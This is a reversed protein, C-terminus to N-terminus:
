ILYKAFTRSLSRKVSMKQANVFSDIIVQIAKDIHSPRVFESLQMKAFAESLRIASELHRVTIPYSGTALSERRMDSYLRSIKEEDMQQLRPFVKERAFHIYKRLLDQPIPKADIGTETPVKKLVDMNPDFAPHSRIHSSVVFNALQEDIEPNVTDKVVQLIDFRSLIPETLEVNQNFPITTNYRGGIPNAAAIITCRAQLTTVIGAKSISISQQEMAEHISTRDQDNMKDFEDILCVGKDALVLAGGELTWENTIPDKRVSATLGVASAGQGTAFVARHATKEVYKLFQSKATGPDGLLLVNIDGRIKHKGNINKPVGGFLAAAIATKISRHGYISPAMSAIIRNHIDPSKALARIEREEDDTLRSLSFDDDTNGSGDLQSIHNAEIITAFVPFGNKTNLSADFNNRYIGTVDIEEGPKAVDVLDALLIVERHRPLRGSPVTGPSEQLTIRQYNNYVTRESNIVFPGRSSCNHCFSIKVEVSSDQFFPGLTAGCKTCTFRIYKLQPFLGTRRTVVGSVRVLCNLHSQRLDRLTFCTPLNTIRVHIDSHIREYDPYHLLTAELAVRDFIRFIPAPANALFYALIPKSEGLHAYNVMLSEANVEGLTRIRNGYVSTGNEDTYELLFNKFERAITRRVPDLTVWEAISDAKVDAISELPLEGSEDLAGVNPSYEDYIRHRHRTFGTGLNSDLDDDEDQLFAAPKTRGAAADLEIDRRRLRADVARRAGIDLEELDNDDDLEEIDYRDLELNQQYDREMGEGFLDEGEEDEVDLAEGDLDEIDEEVLAEAAEDSFEPPPSSPPLSLPTAGLSSNESEFPLSESDRRGRKRFSDM